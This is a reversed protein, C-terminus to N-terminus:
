NQFGLRKHETELVFVFSVKNITDEDLLEAYREQVVAEADEVGVIKLAHYIYAKPVVQMGLVDYSDFIAEFDEEQLFQQQFDYLSKDHPDSSQGKKQIQQLLKLIYAKPDEPKENLVNTM